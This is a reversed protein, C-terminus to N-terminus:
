LNCGAVPLSKSFQNVIAVRRLLDYPPRPDHKQRTFAHARYRNGRRDALAHQRDSPEAKSKGPALRALLWGEGALSESGSGFPRDSGRRSGRDQM